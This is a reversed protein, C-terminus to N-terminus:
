IGDDTNVDENVGFIKFLEVRSNIGLKKYLESTHNKVTSESVGLEGAIQRRTKAALLLITIEKQRPTLAYEGFKDQEDVKERILEMDNASLQTIWKLSFLQKYSFPSLMLALVTFLMVVVLMAIPSLEPYFSEFFDDSFYLVPSAVAFILTCKKLLKYSAFRRQVCALMYICLPWGIDALGSFFYQPKRSGIKDAFVAFLAMTVTVAFFFNWIHWVNLKLVVTMLVLVAGATFLGALLYKYEPRDDSDLIGWMYGDVTFYMMFYALAWYMASADAKDSTERVELDKEKFMILCISLAIVLLMPLVQAWFVPNATDTDVYRVVACVFFMIVMGVLREANNAAFAYGCRASTVAGGLGAYAVIAFLLRVDSEPMLIYPVFGLVMVSVSAWILPKFRKSWLLMVIVSTIGHVAVIVTGGSVGCIDTGVPMFHGRVSFLILEFAYALM